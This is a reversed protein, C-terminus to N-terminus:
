EQGALQQLFSELASRHWVIGLELENIESAAAERGSYVGVVRVEGRGLKYGNGSAEFPGGMHRIVPSGSFGPKTKGGIYFILRSDIPVRPESAVTAGKYILSPGPEIGESLVPFGVVFVQDTANLGSVEVGLPLSLNAGSTAGGDSRGIELAALDAGAAEIWAKNLPEDPNEVDTM